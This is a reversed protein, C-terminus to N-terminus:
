DFVGVASQGIGAEDDDSETDAQEIYQDGNYAAEAIKRKGHEDILQQIGGQEDAAKVNFLIIGDQCWYTIEKFRELIDENSRIYDRVIEEFESSHEGNYVFDWDVGDIKRSVFCCWDYYLDFDLTRDVEATLTGRDEDYNFDEYFELFNKVTGKVRPPYPEGDEMLVNSGDNDTAM